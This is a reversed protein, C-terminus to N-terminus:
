VNVRNDANILAARRKQNVFYMYVSGFMLVILLGIVIIFTYDFESEESNILIDSIPTEVLKSPEETSKGQDLVVNKPPQTESITKPQNLEEKSKVEKQSALIDETTKYEVNQILNEGDIKNVQALLDLKDVINVMNHKKAVQVKVQLAEADKLLKELDFTNEDYTNTSTIFEDFHTNLEVFIKGNELDTNISSCEDKILSFLTKVPAMYDIPKIPENTAVLDMFTVKKSEQNYYINDLDLLIKYKVNSNSNSVKLESILDVLIDAIYYCTDKKIDTFRSYGEMNLLYISSGSEAKELSEIPVHVGNKQYNELNLETPSELLILPKNDCTVSYFVHDDRKRLAADPSAPLESCRSKLVEMDNNSLNSVLSLTLLLTVILTILRHPNYSTQM